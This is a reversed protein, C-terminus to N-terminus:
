KSKHAKNMAIAIAQRNKAMGYDMGPHKKMMTHIAKDRPKGAPGSTLESINKSIIKKTIGPQLPM